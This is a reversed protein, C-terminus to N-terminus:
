QDIRSRFEGQVRLDAELEIIRMEATLKDDTVKRLWSQTEEMRKEIDAAKAQAHELALKTQSLENERVTLNARTIDNSQEAHRLTQRAFSIGGELREIAADKVTSGRDLEGDSNDQAVILNQVHAFYDEQRQNSHIKFQNFDHRFIYLKEALDDWQGRDPLAKLIEPMAREIHALSQTHAELTHQIVRLHAVMTTQTKEYTQASEKEGKHVLDNAASIIHAGIKQEKMQGLTDAFARIERIISNRHRELSGDVQETITTSSTHIDSRILARLRNQEAQLHDSTPYAQQSRHMETAMDQRIQARSPTNETSAHLQDRMQHLLHLLSDRDPRGTTPRPTSPHRNPCPSPM